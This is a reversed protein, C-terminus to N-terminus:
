YSSVCRRWFWGWRLLSKRGQSKRRDNSSLHLSVYENFLDTTATQPFHGVEGPLRGHFKERLQGYEICLTLFLKIRRAHHLQYIAHIALVANTYQNASM